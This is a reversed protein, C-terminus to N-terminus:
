YKMSPRDSQLRNLHNRATENRPDLELAKKYDAIAEARNNAMEYAYGRHNYAMSSRTGNRIAATCDEIAERYQKWAYLYIACRNIYPTPSQPDAHIALSVDDFAERYNKKNFAELGRSNYTIQLQTNVAAFQPNGRRLEEFENIAKDYDAKMRYAIGRKYYLMASIEPAAGRIAKDCANIIGNAASRVQGPTMQRRDIYLCQFTPQTDLAPRLRLAKGYNEAAAAPDGKFDLAVALFFVIDSDQKDIAAANSLDAAALTYNAEILHCTGRGFLAKAHKPEFELIRAYEVIAKDCDRNDRFANAAALAATVDLLNLKFNYKIVGTGRAPKGDRMAPRFTSRRAADISSETLGNPLVTLRSVSTVRGTEDLELALKVEGSTRAQRAEQTYEPKVLNVARGSLDGLDVPEVPQVTVTPSNTRIIQVLESTAGAQRLDDERDSTLPKDVKRRKIQAVVFAILQTKNRFVQNPLKTQLATIIEPYTLPGEAQGRAPMPDCVLVAMLVAATLFMIRAKNFPKM